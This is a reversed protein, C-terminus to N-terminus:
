LDYIVLFMKKHFSLSLVKTVDRLQPLFSAPTPFVDSTTAAGPGFRDRHCCHHLEM